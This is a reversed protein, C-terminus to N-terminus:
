KYLSDVFSFLCLVLYRQVASYRGGETPWNHEQQAKSGPQKSQAGDVGGGYKLTEESLAKQHYEKDLQNLGSPSLSLSPFSTSIATLADVFCYCFALM